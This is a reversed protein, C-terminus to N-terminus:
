DKTYNTYKDSRGRAKDVPYKEASKKLKKRLSDELDIGLDNSMLLIWHLVDALEDEIDEKRDCVIAELESGNKWQFIELVENAELALSIASDKPNHFQKWDREDRFQVVLKALEELM